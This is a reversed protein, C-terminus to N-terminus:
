EPQQIATLQWSAGGAPRVFTWYEEFKVPTEKSGSVVRGNNEEVTYDLLSAAFHVTVFARGAEVWAERIESRRVAINELRNIWREAKLTDLLAQFEQSVEPGLLARV